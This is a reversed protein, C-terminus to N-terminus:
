GIWGNYHATMPASSGMTHALQLSTYVGFFLRMVPGSSLDVTNTMSLYATSNLPKYTITVIGSSPNLATGTSSSEFAQMVLQHNVPRPTPKYVSLDITHTGTSATTNKELIMEPM